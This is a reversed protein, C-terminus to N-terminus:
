PFFVEQLLQRTEWLSLWEGLYHEYFYIEFHLHIGNRTGSAGDSTGSNGTYGIVQGRMVQTGTVIEEPIASLHAYHSVLGGGYDIWVQRGRFLNEIEPPTRHLRACEAVLESFRAPTLEQYGHDARIVVGDGIAHVPAEYPVDVGMVDEYMDLGHHIGYRYIRTTGPLLSDRDPIYRVGTIPSAIGFLASWNALNDPRGAPDPGAGGAVPYARGAGPYVYLADPAAIYLRGATEFVARMEVTDNWSLTQVVAGTERDLARLRRGAQDLLYLPGEDAATLFLRIPDELDLDAAFARDRVPPAGVYRRLAAPENRGPHLLVYTDRYVALDIGRTVDYSTGARSGPGGEFYGEAVDDYPYRWIQTYTTDLIYSHGNYSAVAVPVPNPATRRKDIPREVHWTGETVTYRYLDGRKDLLLLSAGDPGLALNSIEGVSFGEIQGEPPLLRRATAQSLDLAVLEGADITYATDSLVVLGHPHLLAGAPWTYRDTNGTDFLVETFELSLTPVATPLPTASPMPSPHPTATPEPPPSATRPPLSASPLTTSIPVAQPTPSVPPATLMGHAYWVIAAIAGALILLPAVAWPLRQRLTPTRNPSTTM